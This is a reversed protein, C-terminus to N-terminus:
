RIIALGGLWRYQQTLFLLIELLREGIQVWDRVDLPCHVHSWNIKLGIEGNLFFLILMHYWRTTQTDTNSATALSRSNSVCCAPLLSVPHQPSKYLRSILSLVTIVQLESHHTYTTLLDMWRDMVQRYDGRFPSLIFNVSNVFTFQRNYHFYLERISFNTCLLVSRQLL